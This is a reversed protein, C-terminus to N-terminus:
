ANDPTRIVGAVEYRNNNGDHTVRVVAMVTQMPPTIDLGPIITIELIEGVDLPQQTTFRLGTASLDQMQGDHTYDSNLRKFTMRSDIAMRIFGRKDSRSFMMGELVQNSPTTWVPASM